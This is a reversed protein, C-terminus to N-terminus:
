SPGEDNTPQQQYMSQWKQVSLTARVKQLEDLSWYSPWLPKEDETHENLIAPFEIVRWEDGGRKAAAKMVQATLDRLSWRTMVIVIAGGPQLRQRPGSEYWEFVKDYLVRLTRDWPM